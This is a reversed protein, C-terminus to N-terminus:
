NMWSPPEGGQGNKKVVKLHRSRRRLQRELRFDRWQLKWRRFPTSFRRRSVAWALLLSAFAPTYSLLGFLGARSLGYLAFLVNAAVTLLALMRGTVPLVFFLLIQQDPYRLAWLLILGDVLPWMGLYAFGGIRFLVTVLVTLIGAGATLGIVTSLFRGEGWDYALQPGFFWLTLGGFFLTTPDEQVLVWSVLRWIEGRLVREPFLAAWASDRALWSGVTAVVIAALLLGVASPIRGGFTLARRLDGSRRPRYM